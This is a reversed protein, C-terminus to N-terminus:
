GRERSRELMFSRKLEILLEFCFDILVLVVVIFKADPVPKIIWM